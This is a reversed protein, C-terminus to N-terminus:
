RIGKPMEIPGAMWTNEVKLLSVPTGYSTKEWGSNCESCVYLWHTSPEYRIEVISTRKHEGDRHQLWFLKGIDKEDPLRNIFQM